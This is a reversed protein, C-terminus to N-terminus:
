VMRFRTLIFVAILVSVVIVIMFPLLIMLINLILVIVHYVIYGIVTIAGILIEAILEFVSHQTDEEM